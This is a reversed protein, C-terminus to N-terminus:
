AEKSLKQQEEIFNLISSAHVNWNYREFIYHKATVAKEKLCKYDQNLYSNLDESMGAVDDGIFNVHEPFDSVLSNLRTSLVPTESMWYEFLKSPFTVKSIYDNAPRPNILFDVQKQLAVVKSNDLLGHYKIRADKEAFDEVVNRDPGNGYILLRVNSQSLGSFAELMTRIGNYEILAGVYLIYVCDSERKPILNDANEQHTIEGTVGGHISLFPLNKAYENRSERNLVFLGDYSQIAKKTSQFFMGSLMGKLGKYKVSALPLDALLCHVPIKFLKAIWLAPKSVEIYANFTIIATNKRNFMVKFLLNSLFSIQQHILKVIPLNLFSISQITLGNIVFKNRGIFLKKGGPFAAIPYYSLVSLKDAGLEKQLGSLVGLQMKNGAVSAGPYKYCLEQPIVSGLFIINM